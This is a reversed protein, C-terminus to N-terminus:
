GPPIGLTTTESAHPNVTPRETGQMLGKITSSDKYEQLAVPSGSDIFIDQIAELLDLGANFSEVSPDPDEIM